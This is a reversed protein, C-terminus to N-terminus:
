FIQRNRQRWARPWRVSRLAKAPRLNRQAVIGAKPNHSMDTVISRDIKLINIRSIMFCMSIAKSQQGFDDLSIGYGAKTFATTIAKLSINDVASITETIEISILRHPIRYRDTIGCTEELIEPELITIRSYNLSVPFGEWGEDLWQRM